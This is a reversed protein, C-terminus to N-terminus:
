ASRAADPRLKRPLVETVGLYVALGAIAIWTESAYMRRTMMQEFPMDTAGGFLPLGSGGEPALVVFVQFAGYAIQVVFNVILLWHLARLWVPLSRM